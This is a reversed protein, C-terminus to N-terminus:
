VGSSSVEIECTIWVRQLVRLLSHSFCESFVEEYKQEM